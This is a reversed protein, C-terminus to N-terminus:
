ALLFIAIISISVPLVKTKLECYSLNPFRTFIVQLSKECNLCIFQYKPTVQCATSDGKKYHYLIRLPMEHTTSGYFEFKINLRTPIEHTIFM